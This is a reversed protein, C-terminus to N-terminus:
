EQEKKEQFLDPAELDNKTMLIAYSLSFGPIPGQKALMVGSRRAEDPQPSGLKNRLATLIARLILPVRSFPSNRILILFLKAPDLMRKSHANHLWADSPEVDPVWEPFGLWNETGFAVLSARCRASALIAFARL